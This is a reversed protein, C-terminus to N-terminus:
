ARRGARRALVVALGAALIALSSPEPVVVGSAVGVRALEVRASASSTNDGLFILNPTEYPDPFGGFASYDRLAGTLLTAGDAQLAYSSGLVLLEYRTLAATTDFAAGEARTFLPDDGQAWVEDAWFGLEIGLGDSSLAIVSFGARDASAHAEADLRVDFSLAFGAARDLVPALAPDGFPGGLFYGAMESIDATTDLTTAGGSAAQSADAGVLPLTLYTWGQQDPTTDLAGDYLVVAARGVDAHLLLVLAFALAAVTSLRRRM